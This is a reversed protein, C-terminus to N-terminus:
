RASEVQEALMEVARRAEAAEPPPFFDRTRVARLERRLKRLARRRAPAEGYEAQQAEDIIAQYEESVAAAMREALAREQAASVAESLWIDAEGGAAVVHDALWELQEKTRADLPLAVVADAVQVAGLARLRRWLVIRPTSPERPLRYVLFM